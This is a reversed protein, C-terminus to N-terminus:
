RRPSRRPSQYRVTRRARESTKGRHTSAQKDAIVQSPSMPRLVFEKGKMKFSYHNTRGNHIVGRDYQWPRGLLIHCVSMPVVDCELTDEYAGIKFSVQVTHKVQITGSNSLWQVKYPRPHKKKVLQLRSCLEDSALNHCSGGDIIVKVSCGQIGVKTHFIHRRQDEYQHQQLTLVKSVVLAPSSDNDCFIQADEDENVQRHMAVQELAEMEDESMSDYTGDTNMIMTHRTPCEFSKHGRGKCTFCKIDSTKDTADPPTTSSSARQKSTSTTNPLRSSSTIPQKSSSKDGTSPTARTTSPPTTTMSAQTYSGYTKSSYKSHKYDEQVQREAKTAQHVLELLNSYPQFDAIKKIPHNLGNLFRAMTQEDDEKVNAQIMAVEMEQYYEEVSKTGQKLLQLKTFLDRSYHTPVFRARMVDKMQTWTIISPEGKEQHREVVQEWWILVYDQFELSAMAIKKEEQFNHLRFIKDVKLAWSLYEKSDSSGSFKPM